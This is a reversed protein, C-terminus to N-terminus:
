VKSLVLYPVGLKVAAMTPLVAPATATAALTAQSAMPVQGTVLVEGNVFGGAMGDLTNGTTGAQYIAVGWVAAAAAVISWSGPGGAAGQPTGPQAVDTAPATLALHQLGTSWGTAGTTDATQGFLAAGTGVGNYVAAWSHTLTGGVVASAFSVFNFVDGAQVPVAFVNLIGGTSGMVVTATIDRRQITRRNPPLPGGDLLWEEESLPYRGAVLDSM